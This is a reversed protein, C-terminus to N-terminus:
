RFHEQLDPWIEALRAGVKELVAGASMETTDILLADPAPYLPAASRQRDRADRQAMTASLHGLSGNNEKGKLQKHRRDARAALSATLYIKVPAAPFVVTGMDRGDAVLGPQRLFARQRELLAQRVPPHAAIVSALQGCEESRLQEGTEQGDLLVHLQGSQYHFDIRLAGALAQLQTVDGADIGSQSAACALGRYLYGSDLIHWGLQRAVASALTGKGVGGPGDITLVRAPPEESVVGSTM